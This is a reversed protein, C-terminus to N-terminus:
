RTIEFGELVMALLSYYGVVMLLEVVTPEDLRGVLDDYTDDSLRRTALLETAAGYVLQQDSGAVFEPVRGDRIAAVNDATVGVTEAIAGHAALEFRCNWHGATALIALERLDDPLSGDFRITVGLRQVADGIKPSRLMPDFPGRLAGREDTLGSRSRPGALIADYLMRADQDLADPQLPQLRTM